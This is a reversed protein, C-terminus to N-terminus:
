KNKKRRISTLLSLFIILLLWFPSTLLLILKGFKTKQLSVLQRIGSGFGQLVIRLRMMQWLIPSKSYVESLQPLARGSNLLFFVAGELYKIPLDKMTEIRAKFDSEGYKIGDETYLYAALEQLNSVRYSEEKNLFTDIDVFQGFSIKTVDVFNYKIGNLEITKFLQRQDQNIFKYLEHGVKRITTADQDMIESEKIGTVKSIMRVYMEQEDLIDKLKMIDMWMSITPEKVEYKKGDYDIFKTM